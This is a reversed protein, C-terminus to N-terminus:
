VTTQPKENTVSKYPRAIVVAIILGLCVGGVLTRVHSLGVGIPGFAAEGMHLVSFELGTWILGFVGILM